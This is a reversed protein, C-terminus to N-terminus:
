TRLNERRLQLFESTIASPLLTCVKTEFNTGTVLLFMYIYTGLQHFARGFNYEVEDEAETTRIARYQSFFAM